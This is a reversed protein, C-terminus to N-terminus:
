EFGGALLGASLACRAESEGPLHRWNVPGDPLPPQGLRDLRATAQALADADAGAQLVLGALHVLRGRSCHWVSAHEATRLGGWGDAPFADAWHRGALGFATHWGARLGRQAIVELLSQILARPLATCAFPRKADWDGAIWWDQANGGFLDACRAATVLRLEQLSRLAAPPAQLWHVAVDNGAVLQVCHGAPLSRMLGALVPMDGEAEIGAHRWCCRGRGIGAV